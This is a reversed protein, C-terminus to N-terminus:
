DLAQLDKRWIMKGFTHRVLGGPLLVILLHVPLCLLQLVWSIHERGFYYRALFEPSPFLTDRLAKFKRDSDGQFLANLVLSPLSAANWQFETCVTFTFLHTALTDPPTDLETFVYEPVATGLRDRVLQLGAWCGASVGEVNARRVFELWNDSQKSLESGLLHIDYLCHWGRFGHKHLHTLQMILHDTTDLAKFHLGNWSLKAADKFIRDPERMKFGYDFPEFKMEIYPWDKNELTLNHRPEFEQSPCISLKELSGLPGIGFQTCCAPNNWVPMFGSKKWQELMFDDFSPEVLLDFDVSTRHTTNSYLTRALVPGKLWIIPQEIRDAISILESFLKDLRSSAHAAAQAKHKLGDLLSIHGEAQVKLNALRDYIELDLVREYVLAIINSLGGHAYLSNIIQEESCELLARTAEEADGRLLYAILREEPREELLPKCTFIRCSAHWDPRIFYRGLFGPEPM